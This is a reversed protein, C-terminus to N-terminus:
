PVIYFTIWDNFSSYQADSSQERIPRMLDLYGYRRSDRWEIYAWKISRKQCAEMYRTLLASKGIGGPGWLAIIAGRNSDLVDCFGRFEGVRDVFEDLMRFGPISPM